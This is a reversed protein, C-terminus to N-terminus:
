KGEWESYLKQLIDIVEDLTKEETEDSLDIVKDIDKRDKRSYPECREWGNLYIQVDLYCCHGSFYVFVTPKEGTLDRRTKGSNILMALELVKLAKNRTKENM